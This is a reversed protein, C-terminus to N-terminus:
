LITQFSLYDSFSSLVEVSEALLDSFERVKMIKTYFKEREKIINIEENL